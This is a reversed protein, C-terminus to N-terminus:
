GLLWLGRGLYIVGLGMLLWRYYRRFDHNSLTTLVKAGLKAGIFSCAVAIALWHWVIQDANALISGYFIIKAIHGFTQTAAKTAIIEHRTLSSKLYFVGLVTGSAGAIMQMLVVIFGCGAMVKPNKIDFGVGDPVLMAMFPLLGLLILVLPLSPRYALGTLLVFALTGGLYYPPLLRWKVHQRHIYTRFGNSCLQTFGHLIMASGVPLLVLLVGMLIMGGAMGMVGSIFSTTLISVILLATM